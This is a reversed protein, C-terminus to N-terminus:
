EDGGQAPRWGIIRNQAASVAYNVLYGLVGSAVIFAFAKPANSGIQAEAIKQGIGPANTLVEASIAVLVAVSAALRLGTMISPMAAPLLVKRIYLGQPIRFAHCTEQIMPNVQQVGHQTQIILPFMVAIFVLVSKMEIGRGLMLVLVGVLAVAPFARGFDVLFNVSREVRWFRGSVVGLPIGVVISAALGLMAGSLTAIIAQWFEATISLRGLEVIVAIPDPVLTEPLLATAAILWWIGIVVFLVLVRQYGINLSRRPATIRPTQPRVTHTKTM